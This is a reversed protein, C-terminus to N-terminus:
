EQCSSAIFCTVIFEAGLDSSAPQPSWDRSGIAFTYLDADVSWGFRNGVLRSNGMPWSKKYYSWVDDILFYVYVAGTDRVNGDCRACGVLIFNNEVAVTMGYLDDGGIRPPEPRIFTQLEAGDTINLIYLTGQLADNVRLSGAIVSQGDTSVDVGIQHDNDPSGGAPYLWQFAWAGLEVQYFAVYSGFSGPRPAGVILNQGSLSLSSGFDLASNFSFSEFIIQLFVWTDTGPTREYVVVCGSDTGPEDYLPAGVIAYEGNIAVTRGFNEGGDFDPLDGPALTQLEILTNTSFDYRFIIAIGTNEMTVPDDLFEIGQIVLDEYIDVGSFGPNTTQTIEFSDTQIWNTGAGNSASVSVSMQIKGGDDTAGADEFDRCVRATLNGYVAVRYGCEFFYPDTVLPTNDWLVFQNILDCGRGGNFFEERVSYECQNSQCSARFCTNLTPCDTSNQCCNPVVGNPLCEGSFPDCGTTQCGIDMCTVGLCLDTCTCTTDDCVEGSLCQSSTFCNGPAPVNLECRNDTNCIPELCNSEVQPCDSNTLCCSPDILTVVCEGVSGQCGYEVCENNPPCVVGECLDTIVVNPFYVIFGTAVVVSLLASWLYNTAILQEIPGNYNPTM